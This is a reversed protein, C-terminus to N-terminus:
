KLKWFFMLVGYKKCWSVCNSVSYSRIASYAPSSNLFQRFSEDGFLSLNGFTKSLIKINKAKPANRFFISIDASDEEKLTEFEAFAKILNDWKLNCLNLFNRKEPVCKLAIVKIKQPDFFLHDEVNFLSDGDIDIYELKPLIQQKKYTIKGKVTLRRLSDLGTLDLQNTDGDSIELTNLYPFMKAIHFPGKCRELRLEKVNEVIFEANNLKSLALQEFIVKKITKCSNFVNIVAPIKQPNNDCTDCLTVEQLASCNAAVMNCREVCFIMCHKSTEADSSHRQPFNARLVFSALHPQQLVFMENRTGKVLEEFLVRKSAAEMSKCVLRMEKLEKKANNDANISVCIKYWLEYPLESM